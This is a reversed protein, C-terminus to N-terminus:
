PEVTIATFFPCGGTAVLDLSAIESEPRPNEWVIDFLRLGAGVKESAANRGNWVVRVPAAAAPFRKSSPTNDFWDHIDLGLVLPRVAKQGDAYHIVIQGIEPQRAWGFGWTAACLFHLRAAGQGVRVGSVREPFAFQGGSFGKDRPYVQLIGRVDWTVGGLTQVGAKLDALSTELPSSGASWSDQLRANYHQTLDVCTAPTDPARPTIKEPIGWSVPPLEPLQWAVASREVSAVTPARFIKLRMSVCAAAVQSGDSSVALSRVPGGTQHKGLFRWDGTHWLMLEHDESASLLTQGDPTFCVQNIMRKHGRIEAIERLTSLDWVKVLNDHGCTALLRSDPSFALGRLGARHGHLTGYEAGYPVTRLVARADNSITAHLRGDPSFAAAVVDERHDKASFLQRGTRTDFFYRVGQQCLALTTGDPSLAATSDADPKVPFSRGGLNAGTETDWVEMLGRLMLTVLKKGDPSFRLPWRRYGLVRVPRLTASDYLHLVDEGSCAALLRGDPSFELSRRGLLALVGTTETPQREAGLDWLRVTQDKGGSALRRGDPSFALATVENEHGILTEMPKRQEMDWLIIHQNAAGTALVNAMPSAALSIVSGSDGVLAGLDAGDRVSWLPPSAKHIRTTACVWSGDRALAIDMATLQPFQLVQEGTDTNWVYVKNAGAGTALLEGDASFALRTGARPLSRMRVGELDSQWSWLRTEGSNGYWRNDNVGLALLPATPSFLPRVAKLPLKKVLRFDPVSWLSLEAEDGTALLSDDHSFSVGVIRSRGDHPTAVVDGTTADWVKVLGGMDGSALLRGSRSFALTGVVNRHGELLASQGAKVQDNLYHWEFGRLDTKDASPLHAKLLMRVQGIDGNALLLSAASMDAEYAVLLARNRSREAEQTLLAQAQEARQSRIALLTSAIIGAVLAVVLAASAAVLGRNRRVMRGVAYLRSPPRALVPEHRLHREIDQALAAASDYRRARDKELCKMVIWDLDGSLLSPLREPEVLRRKATTTLEEGTMARVRQSPRPPDVERICRRVEEPSKHTLTEEAIPTCGTLLEYLLVGLSYIDSRTDVDLAGQGTQEPSMYLPTGVMQGALTVLSAEGLTAELAKAVGFDIVKVQPGAGSEAVLVNSPKLDRHIIGKQHAHHIAECVQIFLRLRNETNMEHEDCFRTAREGRVLEMTIFPRGGPTAGADYIHAINPHEMRALAQREQRFRAVVERTDMGLKLIKLAVERQIPARQEARWVTGFGGAGLLEVLEYAGILAGKEEEMHFTRDWEACPAMPQEMFGDQGHAALLMEIRERMAVDAGCAEAVWGARKDASLDIAASFIEAESLVREGRQQLAGANLSSESDPLSMLFHLFPNEWGKM